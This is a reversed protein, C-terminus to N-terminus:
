SGRIMTLTSIGLLVVPIWLPVFGVTGSVVALVIAVLIMVTHLNLTM